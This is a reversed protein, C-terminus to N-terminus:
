NREGFLLISARATVCDTDLDDLGNIEKWLVGMFTKHNNWHGNEVLKTRDFNKLWLVMGLNYKSIKKMAKIFKITIEGDYKNKCVRCECVEAM